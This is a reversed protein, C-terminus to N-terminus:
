IFCLLMKEFHLLSLLNMQKLREEVQRYVFVFAVYNNLGLMVIGHKKLRWAAM